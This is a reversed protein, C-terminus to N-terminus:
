KSTMEGGDLPVLYLKSDAVRISFGRGEEISDSNRLVMPGTSWREDGDRFDCAVHISWDEGNRLHSDLAAGEKGVFIKESGGPAEIFPSSGKKAVIFTPTMSVSSKTGGADVYYTYPLNTKIGFGVNQLKWGSHLHRGVEPAYLEFSVLEPTSSTIRGRTAYHECDGYHAFSAGPDKLRVTSADYQSQDVTVTELFLDRATKTRNVTPRGAHNQTTAEDSFPKDAKVSILYNPNVNMRTIVCAYPKLAGVYIRDVIQVTRPFLGFLGSPRTVSVSVPVFSQESLAQDNPVLVSLGGQPGRAVPVTTGGIQVTVAEGPAGPLFGYISLSRDKSDPYLRAPVVAAVYPDISVAPLADLLQSVVALTQNLELFTSRQTASITRRLDAVLLHADRTANGIVGNAAAEGKGIVKDLEGLLTTARGHADELKNASVVDVSAISKQIIHNLQNLAAHLAVASAAAGEPTPSCAGLGIAGFVLSALFACFRAIRAISLM